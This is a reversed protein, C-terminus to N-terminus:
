FVALFHQNVQQAKSGCREIGVGFRRGAGQISTESFVRISSVSGDDSSLQGCVVKRENHDLDRTQIPSLTDLGALLASFSGREVQRQQWHRTEGFCFVAGVGIRIFLRKYRELTFKICSDM